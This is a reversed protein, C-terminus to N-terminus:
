FAIKKLRWYLHTSTSIDGVEFDVGKNEAAGEKGFFIEVRLLITFSYKGSYWRLRESNVELICGRM